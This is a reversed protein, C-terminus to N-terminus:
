NAKRAEYLRQTLLYGEFKWIERKAEDYAAQEGVERNYNEKSACYAMGNVKFGNVLVISCVTTTKDSLIDYYVKHIKEDILKPSLRPATLNREQIMKEIKEDETM